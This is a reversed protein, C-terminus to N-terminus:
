REPPNGSELKALDQMLQKVIKDAVDATAGETMEKIPLTGGVYMTSKSGIGASAPIELLLFSLLLTAGTQKILTRRKKKSQWTRIPIYM